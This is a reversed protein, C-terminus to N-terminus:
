RLLRARARSDVTVPEANRDGAGDNQLCAFRLRSSQRATQGVRSAAMAANALLQRCCHASGKKSAESPYKLDVHPPRLKSRGRSARSSLTSLGPLCEENYALALLEQELRLHRERSEPARCMGALRHHEAAMARYETAGVM